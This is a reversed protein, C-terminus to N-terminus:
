YRGTPAPQRAVLVQIRRPEPWGQRRWFDRVTVADAELLLTRQHPIDALYHTAPTFFLPQVGFSKTNTKKKLSSTCTTLSSEHLTAGEHQQQRRVKNQVIPNHPLLIWRLVTRRCQLWFFYLIKM